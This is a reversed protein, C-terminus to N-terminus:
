KRILRKNTKILSEGYIKTIYKRKIILKNGYRDANDYFRRYWRFFNGRLVQIGHLVLVPRDTYYVYITYNGDKEKIIIMQNIM